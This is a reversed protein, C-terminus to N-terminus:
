ATQELHNVHRAHIQMSKVMLVTVLMMVNINLTMSMHFLCIFATLVVMSFARGCPDASRRFYFAPMLLRRYLFFAVVGGYAVVINILDVHSSAGEPPLSSWKGIVLYLINEPRLLALHDLFFISVYEPDKLNLLLRDYIYFLSPNFLIVLGIIGLLFIGVVISRFNNRVYFEYFLSTVIFAIIATTSNSSILLIITFFTMILRTFRFYERTSTYFFAAAMAMLVPMALVNGLYGATRNTLGVHRYDVLHIKADYEPNGVFYNTYSSLEGLSLADFRLGFRHPHLAIFEVLLYFSSITFFVYLMKFLLNNNARSFSNFLIPLFFLLATNYLLTQDSRVLAFTSAVIGVGLFIKDLTHYSTRNVVMNFLVFGFTFALVARNLFFAINEGAIFSVFLSVLGKFPYFVVLFLSLYLVLTPFTEDKLIPLSRPLM